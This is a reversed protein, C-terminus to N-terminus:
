SRYAKTVVDIAEKANYIKRVQGNWEGFFKKQAPTEKNLGELNKVEFLFNRARYGVLLDVPRGIVEVSCGIKRLAKVIEQQNNDSRHRM